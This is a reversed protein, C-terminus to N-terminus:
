QHLEKALQGGTTYPDKHLLVHIGNAYVALVPYDIYWGDPPTYNDGDAVYVIQTM